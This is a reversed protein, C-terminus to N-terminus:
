AGPELSIWHEVPEHYTVLGARRPTAWDILRRRSAVAVSPEHDGSLEWEPHEVHLLLPALDGTVVATEGRSEVVVVQHGPTHGRAPHVTVGAVLERPGEVAQLQGSAQLTRLEDPAYLLRTTPEGSLAWDYEAQQVVYEANAFAPTSGGLEWALNGGCHDTHLHTNAVVDVDAPDIGASRLARTLGGGQRVLDPDDGLPGDGFGTDVLVIRDPTRIVVCNLGIWIDGREDPRLYPAHTASPMAGTMSAATSRLRGDSLVLLEVNGVRRRVGVPGEASNM